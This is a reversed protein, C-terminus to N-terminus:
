SSVAPEDHLDVVVAAHDSPHVGDVNELGALHAAVPNGLPKPRPWSVFVYDLRRNPWATSGQYPNDDRWTVGPGTGVHAWTDSLVLNPIPAARRGTLLRIEDSDPPANFDGGVVVPPEVDPDGRIEDIIRLVERCQAERLASEDFRYALHTCLLPWSRDGVQARATLARRHGPTGDAGPLAHSAIDTLPWRSIIANHFGAREGRHEAFPDDTLAVHHDGGLAAALRHAASDGDFSWVEQLFLLDPMEARVVAEIAHARDEWPGFRWWLNWTM